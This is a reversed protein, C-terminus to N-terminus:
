YGTQLLDYPRASPHTFPPLIEEKVDAHSRFPYNPNQHQQYPSNGHTIYSVHMSDTPTAPTSDISNQTTASDLPPAIEEVYEGEFSMYSPQQSYNQQVMPSQPMPSHVMPSHSMSHPPHAPLHQQSFYPSGHQHQHQYFHPSHPSPMPHQLQLEHRPGMSRPLDYSSQVPPLTLMMPYHQGSHSHAYSQVDQQSLIPPPPIAVHYQQYSDRRIRHLLSSHDCRLLSSRM